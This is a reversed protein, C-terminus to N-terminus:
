EHIDHWDHGEGFHLHRHLDSWRGRRQVTDGVLREIENVAAAVEEVEPGQLRDISDRAVGDLLRPLASNVALAAAERRWGDLVGSQPNIVSPAGTCSGARVHHLPM